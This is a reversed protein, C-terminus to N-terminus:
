PNLVPDLVGNRYFKGDPGITVAGVGTSRAGGSNVSGSTGTAPRQGIEDELTSVFDQNIKKLQQLKEYMLKPSDWSQGGFLMSGQAVWPLGSSALISQRANPLRPVHQRVDQQFQYARSGSRRLDAAQLLGALDAIQAVEEAATGVGEIAEVRPDSTGMRYNKTLAVTSKISGDNKYPELAKIAKDILLNNAKTRALTQAVQPALPAGTAKNAGKLDTPLSAGLTPKAPTGATPAAPQTGQPQGPVPTVVASPAGPAGAQSQFSVAAADDLLSQAMRMKDEATGNPIMANAAQVAQAITLKGQARQQLVANVHAMKAPDKVQKIDGYGLETAIRTADAGLSTSGTTTRPQFNEIPQMTDPDLYKGFTPSNPRRDHIAFDPTGDPRQGAVSVLSGSTATPPRNGYLAYDVAEAPPKGMKLAVSRRTEIDRIAREELGLVKQGFFTSGKPEAQPQPTQQLLPAFNPLPQPQDSGVALASNQEDAMRAQDAQRPTAQGLSPPTATQQEVTRPGFRELLKPLHQLPSNKKLGKAVNPFHKTVLEEYLSFDGSELGLQLAPQALANFGADDKERQARRHEMLVSALGQGFGGGFSGAGTGAM